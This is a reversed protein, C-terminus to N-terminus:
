SLRFLRQAFHTGSIDGMELVNTIHIDEARAWTLVKQADTESLVRTHVHDDGSYWNRQPMNVWRRPTYTKEATEGPNLKFNASVPIHELGRRIVIEWDGPPITMDFEGPVCWYKGAYKGPIVAQRFSTVDGMGEFLEVLEVANAPRRDQGTTKWTLRVMFPVSEGTDDSLVEIKLRSFKPPEVRIPLKKFPKGSISFQLEYRTVGQPIDKIFLIAWTEGSPNVDIQVPPLQDTIALSHEATVFNRSQSSDSTTIKFLLLDRDGSLKLVGLEDLPKGDDILNVRVLAKNGEIVKLLDNVVAKRKKWSQPSAKELAFLSSLHDAERLDRNLKELLEKEEANFVFDSYDHILSSLFYSEDTSVVGAFAASTFLIFLCVIRFYLYIKTM